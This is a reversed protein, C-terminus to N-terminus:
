RRRASERQQVLGWPSCLYQEPGPPSFHVPSVDAGHDDYPNLWTPKKKKQGDDSNAINELSGSLDARRIPGLHADKHRAPRKWCAHTNRKSHGLTPARISGCGRAQSGPRLGDPLPSSSGAGGHPRPIIECLDDPAQLRPFFRNTKTFGGALAGSSQHGRNSAPRMRTPPYAPRVIVM